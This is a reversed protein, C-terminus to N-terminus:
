ELRELMRRLAQADEGGLTAEAKAQAARWVAQAQGLLASGKPTLRLQRVRRDESGARMQVLGRRQLPKLAATLTSRDLGLADALPQMSWDDRAALMTMMSFQGNTLELPALAEDYM